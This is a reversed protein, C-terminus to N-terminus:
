IENKGGELLKKLSEKARHIRIRVNNDTLGTIRAIEKSSMEELVLSMIIMDILALKSICNHLMDIEKNNDIDDTENEAKILNVYQENKQQFSRKKSLFQLATNVTIRYIWTSFKAEARFSKFGKWINLLAEQYLDNRDETNQVYCCCIRYIRDKNDEILCSFNDEGTKM